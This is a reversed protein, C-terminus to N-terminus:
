KHEKSDKLLMIGWWLWVVGISFPNSEIRPLIWLKPYDKHKGKIIM